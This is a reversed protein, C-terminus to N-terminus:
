SKVGEGDEGHVVSIRLGAEQPLGLISHLQYAEACVQEHGGCQSWSTPALIHAVCEEGLEVDLRKSVLSHALAHEGRLALGFDAPAEGLQPLSSVLQESTAAGEM